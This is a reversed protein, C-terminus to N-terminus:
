SSIIGNNTKKRNMLLPYLFVSGLIIVLGIYFQPTLTRNEHLILIALVVGYVPELNITLNVIFPDLTRLALASFIFAMVTCIVSLIILWLWDINAPWFHKPFGFHYMIPTLFSIIIFGSLLQLFVIVKTDALELLPKSQVTFLSSLFAALLGILLGARMHIDTFNFILAMGPIVLIGTILQSREFAVRNLVPHLISTFFPMTALTVVAVSANAWKISTYFCVWHLAIIGGTYIIKNFYPKSTLIASKEPRFIILLTILTLLLRWWVLALPDISIISGLIATFGYAMVSIHMLLFARQKTVKEM